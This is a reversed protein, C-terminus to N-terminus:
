KGKKQGVLSKFLTEYRVINIKSSHNENTYRYANLGMKFRKEPDKSLLEMAESFAVPDNDVLLGTTGDMLFDNIARVDSAIVPKGMAMAELISKCLGEHESAHVFIDKDGLFDLGSERDLTGLFEVRSDVGLDRVLNKM